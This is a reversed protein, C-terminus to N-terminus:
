AYANVGGERHIAEILEQAFRANHNALRTLIPIAGEALHMALILEASERVFMDLEEDSAIEELLHDVDRLSSVITEVSQGISGRAFGQEPDVCRLLKVVEEYGFRNKM